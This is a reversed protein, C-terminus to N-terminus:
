TSSFHLLSKEVHFNLTNFGLHPSSCKQRSEETRKIRKKM